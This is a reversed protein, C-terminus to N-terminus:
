TGDPEEEESEESGNLIRMTDSMKSAQQMLEEKKDKHMNIILEIEGLKALLNIYQKQYEVKINDVMDGKIGSLGKRFVEV